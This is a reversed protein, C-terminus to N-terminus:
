LKLGLVRWRELKGEVHQAAEFGVRLYYLHEHGMVHRHTRCLDHQLVSDLRDRQVVDKLFGHSHPYARALGDSHVVLFNQCM